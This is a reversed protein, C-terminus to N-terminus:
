IVKYIAPYEIVVQSSENLFSECAKIHPLIDMVKKDTTVSSRM